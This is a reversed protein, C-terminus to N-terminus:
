MQIRQPVVVVLVPVRDFMSRVQRRIFGLLENSLMKFGEESCCCLMVCRAHTLVALQEHAACDCISTVQHVLPEVRHAVNM